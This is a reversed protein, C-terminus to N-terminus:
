NRNQSHYEFNLIKPFLSFVLVFQKTACEKIRKQMIFFRRGYLFSHLYNIQACQVTTCKNGDLYLLFFTNELRILYKNVTFITERNIICM